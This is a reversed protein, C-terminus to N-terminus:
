NIMLTHIDTITAIIITSTTITYCFYRHHWGDVVATISKIDTLPRTTVMAVTVSPMSTTVYIPIGGSM